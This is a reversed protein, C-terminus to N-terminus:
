AERRQRLMEMLSNSPEELMKKDNTHEKLINAILQWTDRAQRAYDMSVKIYQSTIPAETTPHKAQMGYKSVREETQIWRAFSMAYMMVLQEPVIEDLSDKKLWEKMQNYAQMALLQYGGKQKSRMFDKIDTEDQILNIVQCDSNSKKPRGAGKRAGGRKQGNKDM